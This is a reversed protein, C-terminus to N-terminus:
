VFFCLSFSARVPHVSTTFQYNINSVANVDYLRTAVLPIYNSQAIVSLDSATKDDYPGVIACSPLGDSVISRIGVWDYPIANLARSIELTVTCSDSISAIEPVITANRTNFHKVALLAAALQSFGISTRNDVHLGLYREGRYSHLSSTILLALFHTFFFPVPCCSQEIFLRGLM